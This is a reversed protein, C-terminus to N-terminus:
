LALKAYTDFSHSIKLAQMMDAKEIVVPIIEIISFAQTAQQYTLRQRKMMAM